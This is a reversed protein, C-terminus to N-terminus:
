RGGVKGQRDVESRVVVEDGDGLRAAATSAVKEWGAGAECMACLRGDGHVEELGVGAAAGGRGAASPREGGRRVRMAGLVLECEFVLLVLPGVRPGLEGRRERALRHAGARLLRLRRHRHRARIRRPRTILAHPIHQHLIRRSRTHPSRPCGHVVGDREGRRGDRERGGSVVGCVVGHVAALGRGVCCRRWLGDGGRQPWGRRDGLFAGAGREGERREGLVAGGEVGVGVLVCLGCGAGFEGAHAARAERGGCIGLLEDRPAVAGCAPAPAHACPRGRRRRGRLTRAPPLPSRGVQVEDRFHVPADHAVHQAHGPRVVCQQISDDRLLPVEDLPEPLAQEVLAARRDWQRTRICEGGFRLCVVDVHRSWRGCGIGIMIRRTGICARRARWLGAEVDERHGLEDSREDHPVAVARRRPDARLRAAVVGTRYFAAPARRERLQQAARLFTVVGLGVSCRARSGPM